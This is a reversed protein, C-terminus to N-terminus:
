QCRAAHLLEKDITLLYCGPSELKELALGNWYLRSDAAWQPPVAVKMEKVTRSVIQIEKDAPIYQARV